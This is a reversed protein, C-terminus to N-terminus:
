IQFIYLEDKLRTIPLGVVNDYDGDIHDILQSFYGQIGYAGAKDYPEDTDLYESLEDLTYSKFYVSTREHFIKEKNGNITLIAVGTYVQHENGSLSMLIDEADKRDIPKGIIGKYYVITDAAIIPINVYDNNESDYDDLIKDRTALAKRYALEEVVKYPPLTTDIDESLDASIQIVEFGANTLLEIRRPSKSALIIKNNM